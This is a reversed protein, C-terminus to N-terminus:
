SFSRDRSAFFSHFTRNSLCGFSPNGNDDSSSVQCKRTKKVLLSRVIRACCIVSMSLSILAAGSANKMLLLSSVLPDDMRRKRAVPSKGILSLVSQLGNSYYCISDEPKMRNNFPSNQYLFLVAPHHHRPRSRPSGRYERANENNLSHMFTTLRESTRHNVSWISRVYKQGHNRSNIVTCYRLILMRIRM